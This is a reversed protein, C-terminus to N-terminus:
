CKMLDYYFLKGTFHRRKKTRHPEVLEALKRKQLNPRDDELQVVTIGAKKLSSPKYVGQLNLPLSAIIPSPLITEVLTVDDSVDGLKGAARQSRDLLIPM